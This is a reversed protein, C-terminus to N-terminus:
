ARVEVFKSLYAWNRWNGKTQVDSISKKEQIAWTEYFFHAICIMIQAFQKFIQIHISRFTM